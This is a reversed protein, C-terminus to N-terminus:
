VMVVPALPQSENAKSGLGDTTFFAAEETDYDATQRAMQSVTCCGCCLACAVDECGVCNKEPIGDRQRILKRVKTIVYLMYLFYVASLFQAVPNPDPMNDIIAQFDDADIEPTTPTLMVDLAIYVCSIVVVNRFTKKWEDGAVPNAKWDVKLRTMVQGLLAFQCCCAVLFSPHFIGFRTCAFIDDKWKGSSGGAGVGQPSFPVQIVDGEKVGGAPVIVPFVTGNHMANFVFGENMTSPATVSVIQVADAMPVSGYSAKGDTTM